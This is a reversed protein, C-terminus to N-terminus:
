RGPLAAYKEDPLQVEMTDKTPPLLISAQSLYAEQRELEDEGITSEKACESAIPTKKFSSVPPTM